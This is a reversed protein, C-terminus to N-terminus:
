LFAEAHTGIYLGRGILGEADYTVNLGAQTFAARYEEDTFLGLEHRENFQEIGQPTAVLYHFDLIAVTGEAVSVNMRALKLDPQDVFIAHLQGSIWAEPTLFPEIILVGGPCVHAALTAIAQRLRPATRTYAISGFLCTVVDFQRGLAFDAMDGLHFLIDPFRQRALTLMEPDLDLGEYAFDDRLYPIHRGTGCAIDLLTHGPSRKHQAIFRKLRRAEEAYDKGSYIADYYRQSKSFMAEAERFSKRMLLM